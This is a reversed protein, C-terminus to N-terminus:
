QQGTAAEDLWATFDARSKFNLLAISLQSQKESSLKRLREQTKEDL